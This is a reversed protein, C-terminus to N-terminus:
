TNIGTNSKGLPQLEVWGTGTKLRENKLSFDANFIFNCDRHLIEFMKIDSGVTKLCIGVITFVLYQM